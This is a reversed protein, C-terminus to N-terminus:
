NIEHIKVINPHDLGGALSAEYRFRKLLKKTGAGRPAFVKLALREEMTGRHSAEFIVGIGGRGIQRLLTYEGLRDGVTFPLPTDAEDTLFHRETSKVASPAAESRSKSSAGPKGRLEALQSPSLLHKRKLTAALDIPQGAREGDVVLLLCRS